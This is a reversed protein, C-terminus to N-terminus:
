YDTTRRSVFCITKCGNYIVIYKIALMALKKGHFEQLDTRRTSILLFCFSPIGRDEYISNCNVSLTTTYQKMMNCDLHVKMPLTILHIGDPFSQLGTSFIPQLDMTM